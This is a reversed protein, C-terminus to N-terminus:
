GDLFRKSGIDRLCHATYGVRAMNLKRALLCTCTIQNAYQVLCLM